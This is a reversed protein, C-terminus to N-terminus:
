HQHQLEDYAVKDNAPARAALVALFGALQEESKAKDHTERSRYRNAEDNPVNDIAQGGM